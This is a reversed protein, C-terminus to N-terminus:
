LKGGLGPIIGRQADRKAKEKLVKPTSKEEAQPRNRFM